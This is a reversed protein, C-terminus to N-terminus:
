EPMMKRPRRKAERDVAAAEERRSACDACDSAFPLAALRGADIPEGCDRCIGYEGAELRAIAADIRAIEQQEVEGVQSLDYQLQESQSAESPEPDREARRLEDIATAALRSAELIARRRRELRNRVDALDIASM